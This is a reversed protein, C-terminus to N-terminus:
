TEGALNRGEAPKGALNHPIPQRKGREHNSSDATAAQLVRAAADEIHMRVEREAIEPDGSLLASVLRAHSEVDGIMDDKQLDSLIIFRRTHAALAGLLQQLIVHGSIASM